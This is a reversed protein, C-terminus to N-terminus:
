RGNDPRPGQGDRGDEGAFDALLRAKERQAQSEIVELVQPKVGKKSFTAPMQDLTAAAKEADGAKAEARALRRIVMNLTINDVGAEGTSSTVVSRLQRVAEKARAPRLTLTKGADITKFAREDNVGNVLQAFVALPHKAHRDLLEDMAQNAGNLNPADSGLLYLLEGQGDSLLLEAVQDDAQTLPSRVRLTTTPSVVPSGDDAVYVARLRYTGVQEFTFGGQGYGIYASDYIAPQGDSLVVPEGADACRPM